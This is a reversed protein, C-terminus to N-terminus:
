RDTYKPHALAAAAIMKKAQRAEPFFGTVAFWVSLIFMGGEAAAMAAGSRHLLAFLTGHGLVVLWVAMLLATFPHFFMIASVRSGMSTATIKGRIRPLFVNGRQGWDRRTDRRLKFSNERVKGIFHPGSPGDGKSSRQFRQSLTPAECALRQLRESVVHPPANVDFHFAFIPM